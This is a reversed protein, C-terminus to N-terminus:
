LNALRKPASMERTRNAGHVRSSEGGHLAEKEGEQKGDRGERGASGGCLHTLVTTVLVLPAMRRPVGADTEHIQDFILNNGAEANKGWLHYLWGMLLGALPLGYLLWPHEFRSATALDLAWLFFACASGVVVAVPLIWVFWLLTTRISQCLDSLWTPKM